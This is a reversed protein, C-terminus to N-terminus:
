RALWIELTATQGPTLHLSVVFALAIGWGWQLYLVDARGVLKGAGAEGLPV